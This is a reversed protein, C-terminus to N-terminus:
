EGPLAFTWGGTQQRALGRPIFVQPEHRQAITREEKHLVRHYCLIGCMLGAVCYLTNWYTAAKFHAERDMALLEYGKGWWQPTGSATWDAWPVLSMNYGPLVIKIDTFGPFAELIIPRMEALTRPKSEPELARCLMGATTLFSSGSKLILEALQPSRVSYYQSTYGINETHRKFEDEIERFLDWHSFSM